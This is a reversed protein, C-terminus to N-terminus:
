RGARGSGDILLGARPLWAQAQRLTLAASAYAGVRVRGGEVWLNAGVVAGPEISALAREILRDLHALRDERRPPDPHIPPPVATM